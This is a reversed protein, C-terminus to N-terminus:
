GPVEHASSGMPTLSHQRPWGVCCPPPLGVFTRLTGCFHGRAGQMRSRRRTLRISRNSHSTNTSRLANL